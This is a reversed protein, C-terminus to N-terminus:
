FNLLYISYCSKIFAFSHDVYNVIEQAISLISVCDSLTLSLRVLDDVPASKSPACAVCAGQEGKYTLGFFVNAGGPETQYNISNEGGPEVNELDAGSRYAFLFLFNPWITVNRNFLTQLSHIVSLFIWWCFQAFVFCGFM